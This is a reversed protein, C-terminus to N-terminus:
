SIFKDMSVNVWKWYLSPSRWRSGQHSSEGSSLWHKIDAWIWAQQPGVPYAPNWIPVGIVLKCRTERYLDTKGQVETGRPHNAVKASKRRCQQDHCQWRWQWAPCVQGPSMPAPSSSQTQQATPQVPYSNFIHEFKELNNHSIRRHM